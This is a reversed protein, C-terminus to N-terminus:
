DDGVEREELKEESSDNAAPAAQGGASEATAGAQDDAQARQDEAGAEPQTPEEGSFLGAAIGAAVGAITLGVIARPVKIGIAHDLSFRGPGILALATASSLYVLPLEAGGSTVWIPKGAHVKAWAMVMPGYTAIPGIPGLLGLATLVGSGFESAGAM